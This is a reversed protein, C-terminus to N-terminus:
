CIDLMFPSLVRVYRTDYGRLLRWNREYVVAPHETGPIPIIYGPTSQNPLRYCRPKDKGLLVEIDEDRGERTAMGVECLLDALPQDDPLRKWLVDLAPGAFGRCTRAALALSRRSEYVKDHDRQFQHIPDLFSFVHHLVDPVDPLSRSASGVMTSTPPFGNVQEAQAAM